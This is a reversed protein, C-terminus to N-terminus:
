AQGSLKNSKYKCTVLLLLFALFFVAYFKVRIATPRRKLRLDDFSPFSDDFYVLQSEQQYLLNDPKVTESSLLKTLLKYTKIVRLCESKTKYKSLKDSEARITENRHKLRSLILQLIILSSWPEVRLWWVSSDCFDCLCSVRYDTFSSFNIFEGKGFGKQLTPHGWHHSRARAFRWEWM